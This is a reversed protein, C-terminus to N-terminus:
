IEAMQSSASGSSGAQADAVTGCALVYECDFQLFLATLLTTASTTPTANAAPSLVLTSACPGVVVGGFSSFFAWFGASTLFGVALVAL